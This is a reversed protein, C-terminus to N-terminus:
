LKSGALPGEIRLMIRKESLPSNYPDTEGYHLFGLSFLDVGAGATMLGM